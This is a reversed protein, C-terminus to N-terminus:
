PRRTSEADTSTGSGTTAAGSAGPSSEWGPVHDIPATTVKTSLEGTAEGGLEADVHALTPDLGPPRHTGAGDDGAADPVAGPDVPRKRGNLKFDLEEATPMRTADGADPDVYQSYPPLNLKLHLGMTGGPLPPYNVDTEAGVGPQLLLGDWFEKGKEIMRLRSDKGAGEPNPSGPVPIAKPDTEPQSGVGATAGAPASPPPAPPEGWQHLESPDMGSRGTGQGDGGGEPDDDDDLKGEHMGYLSDDPKFPMDPEAADGGLRPLASAVTDTGLAGALEGAQQRFQDAADQHGIDLVSSLSDLASALTGGLDPGAIGAPTASREIGVLKAATDGLRLADLGSPPTLQAPMSWRERRDDPPPAMLAELPTQIVDATSAERGLTGGNQDRTSALRASNVIM